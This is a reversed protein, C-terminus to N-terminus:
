EGELGMNQMLGLANRLSPALLGTGTSKSYLEDTVLLQIVHRGFYHRLRQPSAGQLTRRTDHQVKILPRM